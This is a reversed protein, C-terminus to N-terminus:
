LQTKTPRTTFRQVYLCDFPPHNSSTVKVVALVTDRYAPVILCVAGRVNDGAKCGDCKADRRWQLTIVSGKKVTM